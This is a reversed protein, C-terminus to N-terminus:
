WKKSMQVTVFRGVASANQSDFAQLGSFSQAILAYPPDADFVNQASVQFRVNRFAESAEERTDYALTLDATTYSKVDISPSVATNAYANQYNVFPNASFGGVDWGLHARTQFRLPFNIENLHDVLPLGPTAGQDYNLVYTLTDGITWAGFGTEWTYSASFDLGDTKLM